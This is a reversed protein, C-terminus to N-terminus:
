VLQDLAPGYGAVAGAVVVLDELAYAIALGVLDDGPAAVVEDACALVAVVYVHGLAARSAVVLDPDVGAVEGVQGAPASSTVVPTDHVGATLQATSALLHRDALPLVRRMAAANLRELPPGFLLAPPESRARREHTGFKESRRLASTRLAM